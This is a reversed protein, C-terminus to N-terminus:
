KYTSTRNNNDHMKNHENIAMITLMIEVNTDNSINNNDNCDNNNNNKNDYCQLNLM